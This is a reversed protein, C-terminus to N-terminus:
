QAHAIRHERAKRKGRFFLFLNMFLMVGLYISFGGIKYSLQEIMSQYNGLQEHFELILLAFGINLLYFGVEFLRNTASAIEERGNFIDLMFVRSNKFLSRSVYITLAISVPLYICYAIIAIQHNM